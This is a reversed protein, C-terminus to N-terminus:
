FNIKSVLEEYSAVVRCNAVDIHRDEQQYLDDLLHTNETQYYKMLLSLATPSKRIELLFDGM